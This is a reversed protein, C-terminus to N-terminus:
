FLFASIIRRRTAVHAFRASFSTIQCLFVGHSEHSRPPNRRVKSPEEESRNLLRCCHFQSRWPEEEGQPEEESGQIFFEPHFFEVHRCRLLTPFM